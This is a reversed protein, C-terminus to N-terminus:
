RSDIILVFERKKVDKYRKEIKSLSDYFVEETNTTLDLCIVASREKGFIKEASLLVSAIRYPTDLIIIPVNFRKLKLLKNEREKNNRPLLGAYYFEKMPFPTLMIAATVSSAGPLVRVNIGYDYCYQLLLVGPDELLPTGCDSILISTECEMIKQVLAEIENQKTHENLELMPKRTNFHKLLKSGEKFSEVIILDSKLINEELRFTNDGRNGIDTAAIFLTPM